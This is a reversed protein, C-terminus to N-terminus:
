RSLHVGLKVARLRLTCQLYDLSGFIKRMGPTEVSWFQALQGLIVLQNMMMTMMMLGEVALTTPAGYIIECGTEEM